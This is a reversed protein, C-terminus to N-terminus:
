KMVENPELSSAKLRPIDIFMIVSYLACGMQKHGGSSTKTGDPYFRMQKSSSSYVNVGNYTINIEKRERPSWLM